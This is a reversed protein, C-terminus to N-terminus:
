LGCCEGIKSDWCASALITAFEDGGDFSDVYMGVLVATTDGFRHMRLDVNARGGYDGYSRDYAIRVSTWPEDDEVTLEPTIMEWTQAMAREIIAAPTDPVRYIRLQLDGYSVSEAAWGEGGVHAACRDFDLIPALVEAYETDWDGAGERVLELEERTLHLNNGHRTYWSLWQAPLEVRVGPESPVVSMGELTSSPPATFDPEVIECSASGSEGSTQSTESTSSDGAVPGESSPGNGSSGLGGSESSSDGRTADGTAAPTAACSALAM